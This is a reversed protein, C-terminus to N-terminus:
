PITTESPTFTQTPIETETATPSPPIPTVTRTPTPTWEPPYTPFVVVDPTPTQHTSISSIVPGIVGIYLIVALLILILIAAGISLVRTWRESLLRKRPAAPAEPNAEPEPLDESLSLDEELEELEEPEDPEPETPKEPTPEPSSVASPKGSLGFGSKVVSPASPEPKKAFLEETRRGLLHALKSQAVTNNPNIKLVRELCDKQKESDPLVYSMLLWAQESSPNKMLYQMLIERAQDLRGNKVMQTAAALAETQSPTSDSM